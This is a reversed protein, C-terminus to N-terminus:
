PTREPWHWTGPANDEDYPIDEEYRIGHPNLTWGSVADDRLPEVVIFPVCRSPYIGDASGRSVYHVTRGTSPTQGTDNVM